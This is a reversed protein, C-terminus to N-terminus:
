QSQLCALIISKKTQTYQSLFGNFLIKPNKNYFQIVSLLELIKTMKISLNDSRQYNQIDNANKKKYKVRYDVKPIVWGPKSLMDETNSVPRLKDKVLNDRGNWVVRYNIKANRLLLWGHYFAFYHNSM